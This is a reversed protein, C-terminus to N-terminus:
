WSLFVLQSQESIQSESGLDLFEWWDSGQDGPNGSMSIRISKNDQKREKMSKECEAVLYSCEWREPKVLCVMASAQKRM